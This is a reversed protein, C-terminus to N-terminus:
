VHVDDWPDRASDAGRGGVDRNPIATFAEDLAFRDWVVRGHIQKGSPMLKEAILKDFLSPSIGVYAAASVRSLGRPALAALLTEKPRLAASM